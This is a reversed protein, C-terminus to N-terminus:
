RVIPELGAEHRAYDECIIKPDGDAKITGHDLWIARSALSQVLGLDHSVIIVIHSTNLLQHMRDKAKAVFQVDGGAFIEDIVLIEPNIDTAVSFALRMMMGTSYYKIPTSAFDTLGAFDLIGEAKRRMQKASFGLMAGNLLINERGSLEPNMGAGLEILPAVQGKVHVQGGTPHYIGCIMKLLTSKGAGNPGVIAFQEGHEIKLNLDRFLWFEETKSYQRRFISNLFAQKLSPTHNGYARFLLSVDDLQIRAQDM